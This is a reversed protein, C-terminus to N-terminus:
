YQHAGFSTESQGLSLAAATAYVTTVQKPEVFGLMLARELTVQRTKELYESELVSLRSIVQKSEHKAEARAATHAVAELLFIGYLFLSLAIVGACGAILRTVHPSYTM